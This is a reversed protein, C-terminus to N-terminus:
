WPYNTDDPLSRPTHTGAPRTRVCVQERAFEGQPLPADPAPRLWRNQWLRLRSVFDRRSRPRGQGPRRDGPVPGGGPTRPIGGAPVAAPQSQEPNRHQDLVPQYRSPAAAEAYGLLARGIGRGQLDPAVMLRGIEWQGAVDASVRARVSGVLRGGSRVVWTHWEAFGRRVEDADEALAPIDFTANAVAESLWCARQLVALEAADAPQAPRVDLGDAVLAASVHRLDPRRDATRAVRQEQRWAAIAGHDGSLLVPPVAHGRWVPPKTYVPYELLGDEHSEEVLSEANGIVGPLLRAVAEVIALVAVEGGNLVYDGLSVVSVPM